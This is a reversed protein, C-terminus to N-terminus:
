HPSSDAAESCEVELPVTPAPTQAAAVQVDGMRRSQQRWEAVWRVVDHLYNDTDNETVPAYRPLIREVTSLGAYNSDQAILKFWDHIGDAWSTYDRFGNYEGYQPDRQPNPRGVYRINGINKTSDETGRKRGVWRPHTGFSSERRFFALAYVPDVNYYQGYRVFVKGLGAAPSRAARLIEDIQGATISMTGRLSHEGPPIRLPALNVQAGPIVGTMGRPEEWSLYLPKDEPAPPAVSHGVCHVRTPARPLDLWFGAGSSDGMLSPKRMFAVIFRAPVRDTMKGLPDRVLLNGQRDMGYVLIYRAVDEVDNGNVILLKGARLLTRMGAVEVADDNQDEIFHEGIDSTGTLAQLLARIIKVTNVQAQGLDYDRQLKAMLRVDDSRPLDDRYHIMRAVLVGVAAASNPGPATLSPVQATFPASDMLAGAIYDAVDTDSAGRLRLQALARGDANGVKSWAELERPNPYRGLTQRYLDILLILNRKEEPQSELLTRVEPDDLAGAVQGEEATPGPDRSKPSGPAVTRVPPAPSRREPTDLWVFTLFGFGVVLTLSTAALALRRRTRGRLRRKRPPAEEAGAEGDAPEARAEDPPPQPPDAM